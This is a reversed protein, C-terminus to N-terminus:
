AFLIRSAPGAEKDLLRGGAIPWLTRAPGSARVLNQGRRVHCFVHESDARCDLSLPRLSSHQRRVAAPRLRARARRRLPRPRLRPPAPCPSPAASWPLSGAERDARCSSRGVDPRCAFITACASALATSFSRPSPFVCAALTVLMAAWRTSCSPSYRSRIWPRRAAARRPASRADVATAGQPSRCQERAEDGRPHHLRRRLLAILRRAGLPGHRALGPRLAQHRGVGLARETASVLRETLDCAVQCPVDRQKHSLLDLERLGLHGLLAPDGCRPDPHDASRGDCRQECATRQRGGRDERERDEQGLPQRRQDHAGHERNDRVHEDLLPLSRTASAPAGTGSCVMSVTFSSTSHAM